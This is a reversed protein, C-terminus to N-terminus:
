GPLDEPSSSPDEEDPIRHLRDEERISALAHVLNGRLDPFEREWDPLSRKIRARMREAGYPCASPLIPLGLREAEGAILTEDSYILPRVVRIGSRTMMMHPAFSRFRGALFLNMLATEILDDRHHGLAISSCGLARARSALIGRRLNACLSCPHSEMRDGLLRFLPYAVRDLPIRLDALFAEVPGPDQHGEGDTGDILCARLSFPIPSRGRLHALGLALVLSDKGGSMGILISDGPRIMGFDAICRGLNRRLRGSLESRDNM